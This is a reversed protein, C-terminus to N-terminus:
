PINDHQAPVRFRGAARHKRQHRPLTPRSSPPAHPPDVTSSRRPWGARGRVFPCGPVQGGATKAFAVLIRIRLENSRPREPAEPLMKMAIWWSCTQREALGPPAAHPVALGRFSGRTRALGPPTWRPGYTFIRRLGRSSGALSRSAWRPRALSRSTGRPEALSRSAGHPRRFAQSRNPRLSALAETRSGLPETPSELRGSSTSRRFTARRENGCLMSHLLRSPHTAVCM